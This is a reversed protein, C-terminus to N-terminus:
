WGTMPQSIRPAADPRAPQVGDAHHQRQHGPEPRLQGLGEGPVPELRHEPRPFKTLRVAGAPLDAREGNQIVISPAIQWGGFLVDAIRSGGMKFTRAKGFPLDYAGSVKFVNPHDFGYPSRQPVLLYQNMWGWQEIQRSRVYSATFVLGHSFRQNFNVQLGNYWMHGLNVGSQTIDGFEPFPRNM